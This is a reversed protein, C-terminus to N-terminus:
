FLNNVEDNASKLIEAPDGQNLMLSELAGKMIDAIENGYDTMPYGFTTEPKALDTFATVDLGGAEHKALAAEVGEPRAPFVVGSKGVITQCEPSGLFQVWKWAAEQNPSGSWISDALWPASWLPGFPLSAFARWL